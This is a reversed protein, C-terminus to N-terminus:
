EEPTDTRSASSAGSAATSQRAQEVALLQQYGLRTKFIKAIYQVTERGIRDAVVKEVHGFWRDPDLGRERALRRLSRIRGPGANYAALAFTIRIPESMAPEDFYTDVLHRLYRAGAHINLEPSELDTVAIGADQATSPLLQM